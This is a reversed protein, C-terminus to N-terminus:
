DKHHRYLERLYSKPNSSGTPQRRRRGWQPLWSDLLSSSAGPMRALAGFGIALALSAVANRMLDPLMLWPNPAKLRRRQRQLDAQAQDIARNAQQKLVALSPSGPAAVLAPARLARFRAALDNTSTAQQVAMRMARLQNDAARLSSLQRASVVHQVQLGSWVLLPVLLLYGVSAGVALAAFRRQRRLLGEDAPDLVTALQLLVLGALAPSAANLLTTAFQWQWVPQLLRIAAIPAAILTGFVVFLVLGVQSLSRALSSKQSATRAPDLPSAM